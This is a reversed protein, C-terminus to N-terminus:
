GMIARIRNQLNQRLDVPTKWVIHAFQRTDFHVHPLCDERVTWIVPIQLGQAFGAEYYVGGRANSIITGDGGTVIPCTFDAVIFLSRRIESIIEDDIKNAHEKQDIRFPLYGADSIGAAFGNSYAKDLETGFWMAVFAQRSAGTRHQLAEMREYGQPTISFQGRSSLTVLLGIREMLTVIGEFETDDRAETWALYNSHFPQDILSYTHGYPAELGGLYEFFRDIRESLKLRAHLNVLEVIESSIRPFRVGARRQNILWSTIKTRLNLDERPLQNFTLLDIEYEGGARASDIQWVFSHNQFTSAPTGWLACENKNPTNMTDVRENTKERQFVFGLGTDLM